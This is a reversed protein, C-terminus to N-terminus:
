AGPTQRLVLTLLAGVVGALILTVLGYVLRQVPLFNDKTVFVERFTKETSEADRSVNSLGDRVASEIRRVTEELPKLDKTTVYEHSLKSDIGSVRKDLQELLISVRLLTEGHTAESM